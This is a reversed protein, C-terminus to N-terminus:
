RAIVRTTIQLRKAGRRWHQWIIKKKEFDALKEWFSAVKVAVKWLQFFNRARFFGSKLWKLGVKKSFFGCFHCITWWFRAIKESMAIMNGPPTSGWPFFNTGGSYWIVFCVEGRRFFPAFFQKLYTSIYFVATKKRRIDWFHNAFFFIIGATAPSFKKSSALWYKESKSCHSPPIIFILWM